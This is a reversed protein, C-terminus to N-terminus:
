VVRSQCIAIGMVMLSSVIMQRRFILQRAAASVVPCRKRDGLEAKNAAEILAHKSPSLDAQLGAKTKGHRPRSFSLQLNSSAVQSSSYMHSNHKIVRNYIIHPDSLPIM